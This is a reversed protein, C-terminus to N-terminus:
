YGYFYMVNKKWDFSKYINVLEFVAYEYKCSRVITKRELDLSYPRISESYTNVGWERAMSRVHEIMNFLSTQEEDTIKSFDFTYTYDYNIDYGKEASSIFESPNDRRVGETKIFFPNLMDSYYSRVKQSYYEILYELFEPKVVCFDNEQTFYKNLEKNKFFTSTSNKPPEFDTYKGFEYLKEGFDYVGMGLYGEEIEYDELEIKYHDVIQEKTLSKIKNYDRKPLTGIYTRYGM